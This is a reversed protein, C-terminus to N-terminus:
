APNGETLRRGLETALDSGLTASLRASLDAIDVQAGTPQARVAAIINAEDDSLSGALADLKAEIRASTDAARGAKLNAQVVWDAAPYTPQAGADKDAPYNPNSLPDTWSVDDEVSTLDTLSENMDVSGTIGPVHGVSTYQHIDVHGTYSYGHNRGDNLGYNAAWIKLGPVGLTDANIGALMSTNGYLMVTTFGNARLRNLFKQAFQRAAANPAFPAELDLAPPLGTAGLRHVEAALVDAQAEASPQLQAYHYLGVPLGISQAAHVQGDAHVPALGGGDTGKVYVFSVGARKVAAWDTVTQYRYIDIGLAM